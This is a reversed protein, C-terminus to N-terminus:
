AGPRQQLRGELVDRMAAGQAGVVCDKGLSDLVVTVVDM